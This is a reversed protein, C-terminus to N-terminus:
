FVIKFLFNDTGGKTVLWQAEIESPNAKSILNECFSEAVYIRKIVGFAV